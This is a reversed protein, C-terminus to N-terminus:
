YDIMDIKIRNYLLTRWPAICFPNLIQPKVDQAVLGHLGLDKFPGPNWLLHESFHIITNLHIM